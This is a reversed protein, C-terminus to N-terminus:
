LQNRTSSRRKSSSLSEICIRILQTEKLKDTKHSLIQVVLQILHAQPMRKLLRLSASSAQTAIFGMALM